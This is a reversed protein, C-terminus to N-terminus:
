RGGRSLNSVCASRDPETVLQQCLRCLQCFTRNLWHAAILLTSGVLTIGIDWRGSPLARSALAAGGIAIMGLLMPLLVIKRHHKQYGARFALAGVGVV